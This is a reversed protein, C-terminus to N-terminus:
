ATVVEWMTAAADVTILVAWATAAAAVLTNWLDLDGVIFATIAAATLVIGLTMWAARLRQLGRDFRDSATM